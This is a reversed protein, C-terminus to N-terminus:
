QLKKLFQVRVPDLGNNNVDDIIDRNVEDTNEIIFGLRTHFEISGKNVPSTISRVVKCGRNRVTEFLTYYLKSGLGKERYDPHVGVFHIYAEEPYSQSIFGVLFGVILDDDEIVFSSDNFHRFFLKQLLHSVQRGGWWDDMVSIVRKYDSENLNRLNM